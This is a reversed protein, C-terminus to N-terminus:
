CYHSLVRTRHRRVTNSSTLDYYVRLYMFIYRLYMVLKKVRALDSTKLNLGLKVLGLCRIAGPRSAGPCQVLVDRWKRATKGGYLARRHFDSPERANEDKNTGEPLKM